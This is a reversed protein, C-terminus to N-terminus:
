GQLRAEAVVLMAIGRISSKSMGDGGGRASTIPVPRGYAGVSGNTRAAISGKQENASLGFALLLILLITRHAHM